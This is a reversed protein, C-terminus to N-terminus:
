QAGGALESGQWPEFDDMDADVMLLRWNQTPGMMQISGGELLADCIFALSSARQVLRDGDEFPLMIGVFGPVGDANRFFLATHELHAPNRAVFPFADADIMRQIARRSVALLLLPVEYEDFPVARFVAAQVKAHEACVPSIGVTGDSTYGMGIGAVPATCDAAACHEHEIGLVALIDQPEAMSFLAPTTMTNM